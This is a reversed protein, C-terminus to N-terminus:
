TLCKMEFSTGDVLGRCAATFVTVVGPLERALEISSFVAPSSLSLTSDAM